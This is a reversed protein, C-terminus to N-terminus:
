VSFKSADCAERITSSAATCGCSPSGVLASWLDKGITSQTFIEQGLSMLYMKSERMRGSFGEGNQVLLTLLGAEQRHLM